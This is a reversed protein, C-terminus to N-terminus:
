TATKSFAKGAPTLWVPGFVENQEVQLQQDRVMELMGLFLASRRSPTAELEILKACDLPPSQSAIQARLYDIMEAVSVDDPEIRVADRWLARKESRARAWGSLDRAQQMMDWVTLVTSAGPEASPARPPERTNRSFRSEEVLYRRGFDGALQRRHSLLQQILSDRTADPQAPRAPDRPLLSRSKWHILTAAMHLWEIDLNLSREAAARLYELFRAVIPALAIREIDVNQLRVENLLLDLPGEFREFQIPPLSARKDDTAM